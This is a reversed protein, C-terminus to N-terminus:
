LKNLEKIKRKVLGFGNELFFNFISNIRDNKIDREEMTKKILAKNAKRDYFCVSKVLDAPPDNNFTDMTYELICQFDYEYSSTELMYETVDKNNNNIALKLLKIKDFISFKSHKRFFKFMQVSGNQASSELCEKMLTDDLSFSVPCLIKLIQVVNHKRERLKYNSNYYASSKPLKSENIFLKLTDKDFAFNNELLLLVIETMETDYKNYMTNMQKIAFNVINLNDRNSKDIEIIKSLTDIRKKFITHEYLEQTLYPAIDLHFNPCLLAFNGKDVTKKVTEMDWKFGHKALFFFLNHKKHEVCLTMYKIDNKDVFDIISLLSNKKMEWARGYDIIAFTLLKESLTPFKNMINNIIKGSYNSDYLNKLITLGNEENIGMLDVIVNYACDYCRYIILNTVIHTNIDYGNKVLFKFCEINPTKYACMNYSIDLIDSLRRGNTLKSCLYKLCKISGYIICNHISRYILVFPIYQISRLFELNDHMTCHVVVTTNTMGSSKFYPTNEISKYMKIRNYIVMTKICEHTCKIEKKTLNTFVDFNGLEISRLLLKCIDKDMYDFFVSKCTEHRGTRSNFYAYSKIIDKDVIINRYNMKISSKIREIEFLPTKDTITIFTRPDIISDLKYESHPVTINKLERKIYGGLQYRIIFDITEFQDHKLCFMLSTRDMKYGNKDAVKLLEHNKLVICANFVSYNKFLFIKDLDKLDHYMKELDPFCMNKHNEIIFRFIYKSLEDVGFFRSSDLAKHFESLNEIKKEDWNYKKPMPFVECDFDVNKRYFESKKFCQSLESIRIYNM